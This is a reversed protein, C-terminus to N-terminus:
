AAPRSNPQCHSSDSNKPATTAIEEVVTRLLTSSSRPWVPTSNPRSANAQAVTWSRAAMARTTRSVVSDWPLSATPASSAQSSPRAASKRTIRIGNPRYTSGSSNSRIARSRLRSTKMREIPATARPAANTEDSNPIEIARPAKMAPTTTPSDSRECWIRPSISGSRSMRAPRKKTETPISTSGNKMTWFTGSTTAVSPKITRTFPATIAM